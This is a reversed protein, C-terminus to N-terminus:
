HEMNWMVRAFKWAGDPDRKLVRLGKARFSKVDAGPSEQFSADFHTWEFAWGDALQIDKVEPHYSVVKSYPHAAKEKENKALIAQKGSVAASGPELLVADETFLNALAAPDGSLTAEIDEHHLQEIAQLDTKANGKEVPAPDSMNATFAGTVGYPQVEVSGAIKSTDDVTATYILTLPSGNYQSEYKWTVNKGDISGNIQVENHESKCSGSLKNVIQVFTCDQDTEHGAISNHIKWQGAINPAAAGFMWTTLLLLAIPMRKM